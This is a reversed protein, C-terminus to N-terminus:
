KHRVQMQAMTDKHQGVKRKTKGSDQTISVASLATFM